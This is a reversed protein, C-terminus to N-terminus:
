ERIQVIVETEVPAEGSLSAVGVAARAHQGREGWLQVLLDSEGNMVKPMDTFGPAVNVYGLVKVIREVKDLDGLAAKIIALHNLACHRAMEYAQELTVKDGVKGAYKLEGNIRGINGGVFLLNGVRVYGIYNAAPVPPNPLKFGLAQLKKEIEM